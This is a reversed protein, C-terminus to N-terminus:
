RSDPGAAAELSVAIIALVLLTAIGIIVWVKLFSQTNVGGDDEGEEEKGQEEDPWAEKTEKNATAPETTEDAEAM